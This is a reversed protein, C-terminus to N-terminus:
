YQALRPLVWSKARRNVLGMAQKKDLGSAALTDSEEKLVDLGVWKLFEGIHDLTVKGHKAALLDFGQELRSDTLVADAFAEQSALVEPAIDVLRTSKTGKHKGGKAKFSLRGYEKSEHVWVIGEGIGESGLARGVPCATEVELTLKELTDLSEQPNAFDVNVTFTEFDNIFQISHDDLATKMGQVEVEEKFKDLNLWTSEDEGTVARVGFLVLRNPLKGIATKGNVKPGCWEGFIQVHLPAMERAINAALLCLQRTVQERGPELVWACFGMNDEQVSLVRERSLCDMQNTKMDLNVGANSGHLKVTGKFTLTPLPRSEDYMPLGAPDLGIYRARHTVKDFVHRFQNISPYTKLEMKLGKPM